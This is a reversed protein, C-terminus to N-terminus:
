KGQQSNALGSSAEDPSAGNQDIAPRNEGRLVARVRAAEERAELAEQDAYIRDPIQTDSWGGSQQLGERSIGAGKAADVAIRRLGYWGRGALHTIGAALETDRLWRRMATRDVPGRSAHDPRTYPVGDRAPLHGGVFLPYDPLQQAVYAREMGALYGADLAETVSALQGSTLRITTGRKKGAGAIVLTGADCHLHRRYCRAVQGLRYEAGVALLLGFRPDVSAAHQLLQRFEDMTYRDRKITVSGIDNAMEEKMQGWPLCATPAIKQEDRLWAALAMVRAIVIETSRAGVKGAARLRALEKRWLRRVEGRDIANWPTSAGWVSKARTVAREMEDRHATTKNWRGREPDIALAWGEAITLPATPAAPMFGGAILQQYKAKAAEQARAEATSEVKGKANRVGYGLSKRKWEGAIRWRLYVIGKRAVDEYATVRHPLLGVTYVWPEDKKARAM